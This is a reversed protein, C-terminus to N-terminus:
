PLYRGPAENKMCDGSGPSPTIGRSKHFVAKCGASKHFVAKCGASKHFVAKCGASKHFVAKCGAVLSPDWACLTLSRHISRGAYRKTDLDMRVPALAIV